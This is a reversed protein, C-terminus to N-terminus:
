ELSCHHERVIFSAKSEIPLLNTKVTESITRCIVNKVHGASLIYNNHILQCDFLVMWDPPIFGNVALAMVTRIIAPSATGQSHRVPKATCPCSVVVVVGNATM